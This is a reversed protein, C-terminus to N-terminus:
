ANKCIAEIIRLPLYDRYYDCVFMSECESVGVFVYVYM